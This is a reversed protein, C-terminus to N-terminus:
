LQKSAVGDDHRLHDVDQLSGASSALPEQIVMTESDSVRFYQDQDAAEEHRRAM